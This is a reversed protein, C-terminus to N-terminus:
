VNYMNQVNKERWIKNEGSERFERYGWAYIKKLM